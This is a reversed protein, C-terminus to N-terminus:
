PPLLNDDEVDEEWGFSGVSREAFGVGGALWSMRIM